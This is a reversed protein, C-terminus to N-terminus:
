CVAPPARASNSRLFQTALFQRQIVAPASAILVILGLAVSIVSPLAASSVLASFVCLVCESTQHSSQHTHDASTHSITAALTSVFAALALIALARKLGILTM